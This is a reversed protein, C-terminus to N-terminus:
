KQSKSLDYSDLLHCYMQTCNKVGRGVEAHSEYLRQRFNETLTSMAPQHVVRTSKNKDGHKPICYQYFIWAFAHMLCCSQNVSKLSARKAWLCLSSRQVDLDAHRAQSDKAVWQLINEWQREIDSMTHQYLTGQVFKFTNFIIGNLEDLGLWNVQIFIDKTPACPFCLCNMLCLKLTVSLGLSFRNTGPKLQARYSDVGWCWWCVCASTCM